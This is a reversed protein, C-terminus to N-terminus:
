VSQLLKLAQPQREQLFQKCADTHEYAILQIPDGQGTSLQFYGEDKSLLLRIARQM